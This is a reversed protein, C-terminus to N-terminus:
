KAGGSQFAKKWQVTVDLMEGGGWAQKTKKNRVKVFKPHLESLRKACSNHFPIDRWVSCGGNENSGKQGQAYFYLIASKHGKQLLQLSVDFDEMCPIRNLSLQKVTPVHYAYIRMYRQNYAIDEINRNNGERASIATHKYEKVLEKMELYMQTIEESTSYRLHWDGKAKRIYFSLDDDAMCIYEDHCNNILYERTPAITKIHEPLVMIDMNPHQKKYQEEEQSQVVITTKSKLYDDFKSITQIKGARSLSPIYIKM